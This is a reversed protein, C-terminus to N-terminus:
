HAATSTISSKKMVVVMMALRTRGNETEASKAFGFQEVTDVVVVV